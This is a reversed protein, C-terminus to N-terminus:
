KAELYAIIKPQDQLLLRLKMVLADRRRALTTKPVGIESGLARLSARRIFLADFTWREEETLSDIADVLIDRLEYREARSVEIPQFPAARMIADYENLPGYESHGYFQYENSETVNLKGNHERHERPEFDRPLEKRTPM